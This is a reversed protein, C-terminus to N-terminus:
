HKPREMFKQNLTMVFGNMLEPTIRNGENRILIELIIKRVKDLSLAPINIEKPKESM